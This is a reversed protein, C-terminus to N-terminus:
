VQQLEGRWRCLVVALLVGPLVGLVLVGLTTGVSLGLGVRSVAYLERLTTFDILDAASVIIVAAPVRYTVRPTLLQNSLSFIIQRNCSNWKQCCTV